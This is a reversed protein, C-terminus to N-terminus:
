ATSLTILPDKFRCCNQTQLLTLVRNQQFVVSTDYKSTELSRLARTKLPRYTRSHLPLLNEQSTSIGNGVLVANYVLLVWNKAVGRFAEARWLTLNSLHVVDPLVCSSLTQTRVVSSYAQANQATEVKSTANHICQAVHEVIGAVVRIITYPPQAGSLPHGCGSFM